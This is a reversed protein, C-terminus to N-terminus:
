LALAYFNLDNIIYDSKRPDRSAAKVFRFTSPFNLDNIIYDSKRPDRSAARVFRFTSPFSELILLYSYGEINRKDLFM